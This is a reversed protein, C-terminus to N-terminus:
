SDIVRPDIYACAIDVLLNVLIIFMASLLVAGQVIPFDADRIANCILLGIGHISFVKEVVVSAGLLAGIGIGVMPIESTIASRLGHRWIVRREPLGKARAARIHGQSIVGLLIGRLLRSYIAAQTTALVLWPLILSTLWKGPDATVGVYSNSGPLLPFKGIDSAFLYLAILGLWFVPVSVFALATGTAARDIISGRRGAAIVGISTGFVACLVGAGVILSLTAPAHDVILKLVPQHAQYSYGLNFHLFIQKIFDFFQIWLSHKFGFEATIQGVVAPSANRPARLAVPDGDPLVTFLIFTLASVLVLSVIAWLVRHAAYRAAHTGVVAAERHGDPAQGIV